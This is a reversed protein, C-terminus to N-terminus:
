YTRDKKACNCEKCLLQINGQLHGKTSDIRDISFQQSDFKYYRNTKMECGCKACLGSQKKHLKM